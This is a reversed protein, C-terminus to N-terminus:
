HLQPDYKDLLNLYELTEVQYSQNVQYNFHLHGDGIKSLTIINLKQKLFNVLRFDSHLAIGSSVLSDQCVGKIGRNLAM